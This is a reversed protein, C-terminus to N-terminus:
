RANPKKKLCLKCTVRAWSRVMPGSQGCLARFGSYPKEKHTETKKMKEREDAYLEDDRKFLCPRVHFHTVLRAHCGPCVTDPFHRGAWTRLEAVRAALTANEEMNRINHQTIAHLEYPISQEAALVEQEAVALRQEAGTWLGDADRCAEGLREVEAKLTDFCESCCGVSSHGCGWKFMEQAELREVEDLSAVLDRGMGGSHHQWRKRVADKDFPKTM